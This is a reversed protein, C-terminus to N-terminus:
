KKIGKLKYLINLAELPTIEDLNINDLLNLSEETTQGIIEVDLQHNNFVKMYDDLSGVPFGCKMVEKTFPTKKLVMYENIKDADEAIFIYFGGNKFLYMKDNNEKKLYKYKEYIKMYVELFTTNFIGSGEIKQNEGNQYEGIQFNFNKNM